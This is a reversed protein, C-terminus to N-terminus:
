DSPKWTTLRPSFGEAQNGTSSEANLFYVRSARASRCPLSLLFRRRVDENRHLKVAVSQRTHLATGASQQVCLLTWSGSARGPLYVPKKSKRYACTPQRSRFRTM